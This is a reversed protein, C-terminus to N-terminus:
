IRYRKQLAKLNQNSLAVALFSNEMKQVIYQYRPPPITFTSAKLNTYLDGGTEIKSSVFSEIEYFKEYLTRTASEHQM